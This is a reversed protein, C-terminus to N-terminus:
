AQTAHRGGGGSRGGGSQSQGDHGSGMQKYLESVRKRAFAQYNAFNGPAWLQFFDGRGVFTVKDDIDAHDKLREGLGMRGDSDIKLQDADGHLYYSWVEFDQSFPDLEALRAENREIFEAGGVELAPHQFSFLVHLLKEKGLVKRFDAPVSVRGKRDISNTMHSVFRGM